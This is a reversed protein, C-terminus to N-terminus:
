VHYYYYDDTLYANMLFLFLFFVIGLPPKSFNASPRRIVDLFIRTDHASGEWGAMIFTFLLDFDCAAM